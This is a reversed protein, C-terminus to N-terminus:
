NSLEILLTYQMLQQIANKIDDPRGILFVALYKMCQVLFIDSVEVLTCTMEQVRKVYSGECINLMLADKCRVLVVDISLMDVRDCNNQLQIRRLLDAFSPKSRLASLASLLESTCSLAPLNRKWADYIALVEAEFPEQATGDVSVTGSIYLLKQVFRTTKCAPFATEMRSLKAVLM